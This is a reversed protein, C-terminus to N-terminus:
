VQGAHIKGKAMAAFQKEQKCKSGLFDRGIYWLHGELRGMGGM